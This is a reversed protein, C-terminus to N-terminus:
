EAPQPEKELQQTFGLLDADEREEIIKGDKLRYIITSSIAIKNGSAPYEMFDNQHTGTTVMRVAVKEGSAMISEINYKLDPFAALGQEIFGPMDEKLLPKPNNSPSYLKYDEDLIEELIDLNRSNLEELCHRVLEMNKQELAAKENLAALEDVAERDSCSAPFSIILILALYTVPNKM